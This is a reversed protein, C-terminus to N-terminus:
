LQQYTHCFERLHRWSCLQACLLHESSHSPNPDPLLHNSRQWHRGQGAVEGTLDPDSDYPPWAEAWSLARVRPVAPGRSLSKEKASLPTVLLCWTDSILFTNHWVCVAKVLQLAEKKERSQLIRGTQTKEHTFNALIFALSSMLILPWGFLQIILYSTIQVSM